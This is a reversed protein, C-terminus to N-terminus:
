APGSDPLRLNPTAGADLRTPGDAALRFAAVGAVM